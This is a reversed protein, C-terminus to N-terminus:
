TASCTKWLRSGSSSLHSSSSSSRSQRKSVRIRPGTQVAAERGRDVRGQEAAEVFADASWAATPRRRPSSARRFQIQRVRRSPTPRTAVTHQGAAPSSRRRTIELAHPRQQRM